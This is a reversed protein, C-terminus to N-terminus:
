CEEMPKSKMQYDKYRANTEDIYKKLEKYLKEKQEVQKEFLSVYYKKAQIPRYANLREHIKEILIQFHNVYASIVDPEYPREIQRNIITLYTALLSHNLEKLQQKVDGEIEIQQQTTNIPNVTRQFSYYSVDDPLCEPPKPWTSEDDDKWEEIFPPPDPYKETTM